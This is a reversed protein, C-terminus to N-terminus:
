GTSATLTEGLHDRHQSPRNHHESGPPAPEQRRGRYDIGLLWLDRLRKLPALVAAGGGHRCCLWRLIEVPNAHGSTDLEYHRVTHQWIFCHAGLRDPRVQLSRPLETELQDRGPLAQAAPQVSETLARPCSWGMRARLLPKIDAPRHVAYGYTTQGNDGRAAWAQVILEDSVRAPALYEVALARLRCEAPSARVCAAATAEQLYGVWVANNVHGLADCDCARVRTQWATSGTNVSFGRFQHRRDSCIHAGSM